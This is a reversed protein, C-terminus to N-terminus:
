KTQQQQQQKAAASHLCHHMLIMRLSSMKYGKSGMRKSRVIWHSQNNEKENQGDVNKM